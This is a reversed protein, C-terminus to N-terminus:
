ILEQYYKVYLRKAITVFCLYSAVILTLFVFYIPPLSTLGLSSGLPTMVLATCAVIGLLTVTLVPKSPRSEIFPLKPTRLLHLILVQSWMSELFWGTQFIALFQKQAEGQLQHYSSGCLWPCLFSYLFIFTLVDFISSLPGFFTMFRSLRRGSWELPKDCLEGDVQDWPLILCIIDYLMNLLLIQLSTIPFFPLTIGAIVIAIINGLNSSATIKIYKSMNIFARRGELIGEELVLLDKKLLIVDAIEKVAPVATDVSIGVDAKLIAALDNMGDGLFGVTHGNTQLLQVLQQKQEPSLEAFITTNEIKMPLENDTLQALQAGTLLQQSDLGVRTGISQAVAANDGTLVKITVKLQKLKKIAAAASAKPADFFALYGLLILDREDSKQLTTASHAKYALALVKMGDELLEDVIAHVSNKEQFSIKYRQGRYEAWSCRSLVDELSGKTLLLRQEGGELLVSAM